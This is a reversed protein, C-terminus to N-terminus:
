TKGEASVPFEPMCRFIPVDTGFLCLRSAPRWMDSRDVRSYVRVVSVMDVGFAFVSLAFIPAAIYWKRSLALARLGSFASFSRHASYEFWYHLCECEWTLYLSSCCLGGPSVTLRFPTPSFSLSCRQYTFLVSTRSDLLRVLSGAELLSAFVPCRDTVPYRLVFTTTLASSANANNSLSIM